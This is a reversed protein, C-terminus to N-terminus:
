RNSKCPQSHEARRFGKECGVSIGWGPGAPPSVGGGSGSGCVEDHPVAEILRAQLAHPRGDVLLKGERRLVRPETEEVEARVEVVEDIM